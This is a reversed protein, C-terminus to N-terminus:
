KLGLTALRNIEDNIENTNSIDLTCKLNIRREVKDDADPISTIEVYLRNIFDDISNLISIPLEYLLQLLHAFREDVHLSKFYLGWGILKEYMTALRKAVYVMMELDSPEGPAGFADQITTNVLVDLVGILQIIESFRESIFDLLDPTKFANTHGDFIGYRYDWKRKQLKNFEDKLIHAFFKYEWAFPKEVLARVAGAAIDNNIITNQPNITIKIYKLGDAFIM